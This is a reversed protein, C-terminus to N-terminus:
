PLGCLRYENQQIDMKERESLRYKKNNLLENFKSIAELNQNQIQNILGLAFLLQKKIPYNNSYHKILITFESQFFSIDEAKEEKNLTRFYSVKDIDKKSKFEKQINENSFGKVTLILFLISLAIKNM